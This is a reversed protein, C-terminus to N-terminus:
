KEIEINRKRKKKEVEHKRMQKEGDGKKRIEKKNKFM